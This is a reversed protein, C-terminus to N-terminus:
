TFGVMDYEFRAVEAIKGSKSEANAGGQGPRGVARHYAIAQQNFQDGPGAKGARPKDRVVSGVARVAGGQDRKACGRNYRLGRPLKNGREWHKRRFEPLGGNGPKHPRVPVQPRDNWAPAAVDGGIGAAALFRADLAHVFNPVIAICALIRAEIKNFDMNALGGERVEEDVRAPVAQALERWDRRPTALEDMLCLNARNGRVGNHLRVSPAPAENRFVFQPVRRAGRAIHAITKSGLVKRQMPPLVGAMRAPDFKNVDVPQWRLAKDEPEGGAQPGKCLIALREERAKEQDLTKFLDVKHQGRYNKPDYGELTRQAYPDTIVLTGGRMMFNGMHPDIGRAGFRDFMKAAPSGCVKGLWDMRIKNMVPTSAAFGHEDKYESSKPWGLRDQDYVNFKRLREMVAVYYTRHLTISEIVPFCEAPNERVYMAFGLWTDELDGGVKVVKTPDTPHEFVASFFGSGLESYGFEWTLASCLTAGRGSDSSQRRAVVDICALMRDLEVKPRYM